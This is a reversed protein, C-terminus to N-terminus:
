EIETWRAACNRQKPQGAHHAPFLRRLVQGADPLAAISILDPEETPLIRHGALLHHQGPEASSPSATIL